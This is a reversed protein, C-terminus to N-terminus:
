ANRPSVFPACRSHARCLVPDADKDHRSWLTKSGFGVRNDTFKLHLLRIEWVPATMGYAQPFRRYYLDLAPAAESPSDLHRATGTYQLGHIQQIDSFQDTITGAVQPNISLMEGHRTDLSSLLLLRTQEDDFAYFASASWPIDDYSTALSLVSHSHLFAALLAPLPIM